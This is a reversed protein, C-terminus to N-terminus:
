QAEFRAFVVDRTRRPIYAYESLTCLLRTHAADGYWGAFRYGPSPTATLTCGGAGTLVFREVNTNDSMRTYLAGRVSITGRRGHSSMGDHVRAYLTNAYKHEFAYSQEFGAEDRVTVTYALVDSTRDFLSPAYDMEYENLGNSTHLGITLPESVIERDLALDRGSGKDVRIRAHLPLDNHTGDIAIRLTRQSDQVCYGGYSQDDIDDWVRVTYSSMRTDTHEDGVITIDLTHSTNPRVDFNDTNNEGLYVRYSLVREGRLARILLYSAYQPAHAADKQQQAVICAVRGQMNAPQYHGGRFLSSASAPIDIRPGATYDCAAASPAPDGFLPTRCPLNFAQVSQLVIDSVCPDVTIRYAIKAVRRRVEVCPLVVVTGSVPRITVQECATMPLDAYSDRCPLALAALQSASLEGLDEHMNALVYLTYIGAPCELRLTPGTCYLHRLLGDGEGAMYLNVDTIACEDTVRTVQEAHAVAVPLEVSVCAAAQETYDANAVYCGCLLAPLLLSLLKYM